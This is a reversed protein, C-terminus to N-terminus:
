PWAIGQNVSALTFGSEVPCECEPGCLSPILAHHLHSEPDPFSWSVKPCLEHDNGVLSLYQNSWVELAFYAARKVHRTQLQRERKM